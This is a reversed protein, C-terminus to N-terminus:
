SATMLRHPPETLRFTRRGRGGEEERSIAGDRELIALARLATAKSVGAEKEIQARTVKSLGGAELKRVAALVRKESATSDFDSSDPESISVSLSGDDEDVLSVSFREGEIVSDRCKAWKGGSEGDLYLVDAAVDEISSAGRSGRDVGEQGPKGKHHIIVGATNTPLCVLNEVRTLIGTMEDNDNEKASGKVRSLSDVFFIGCGSAEVIRRLYEAGADTDLNIKAGKPLDDKCVAVIDLADGAKSLKRLRRQLHRRSMEMSVFLVRTKETRWPGFGEGEAFRQAMFLATYTKKSARRGAILNVTERAFIEGALLGRVPPLDAERLEDWTRLEPLDSVTGGPEGGRAEPRPEQALAGDLAKSVQVVTYPEEKLDSLRSRLREAFPELADRTPEYGLAAMSDRMQCLSWFASDNRPARLDAKARLVAKSIWDNLAGSLVFDEAQVPALTATEREKKAKTILPLLWAPCDAIENENDFLYGPTGEVKVYSKDNGKLDIHPADNERRFRSEDLDLGLPIRFFYHRGGTGTTATLTAPLDRFGTGGDLIKKWQALGNKAGNKHDVDVAVIGEPMAWGVGDLDPHERYLARIKEPDSSAARFGGPIHYRGVPFVSWGNREAYRVAYAEPSPFVVVNGADDIEFDPDTVKPVFNM